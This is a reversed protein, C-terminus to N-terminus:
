KIYLKKIKPIPGGCKVQHCQICADIGNNFHEKANEPDKYILEQAEIFSVAQTKFFVDKDTEDTLVAEKIKTFYEPFKGISDGNLIREKLLENDLYMQEMLAAMESMKYMEFADENISSKSTCKEKYEENKSNCGIFLTLFLILLSLHKM